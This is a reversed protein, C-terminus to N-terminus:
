FTIDVADVALITSALIIQQKKMDHLEIINNIANHMMEYDDVTWKNYKSYNNIQNQRWIPYNLNNTIYEYANNDLLEIIHKKYDNLSYLSEDFYQSLVIKGNYYSFNYKNNRELEFSKLLAISRKDTVIKDDAYMRIDHFSIVYNNIDCTVYLM